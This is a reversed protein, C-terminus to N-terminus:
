SCRRAKPRFAPSVAPVSCRQWWHERPLSCTRWKTSSCSPDITRPLCANLWGFSRSGRTVRRSVATGDQEGVVYLSAELRAALAKCFETKGTGPPGYVLVNVGRAGTQLAGRLIREVHDREDAVHDFDSWCLDGPSAEDLLLDQVDAGTGNPQWDLRTLRDILTVDGDDDISVLGSTLLPADPAFRSWVKNTSLGLM